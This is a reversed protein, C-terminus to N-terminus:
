PIYTFSVRKDKTATGVGVSDPVVVLGDCWGNDAAHFSVPFNFSHWQESGVPIDFSAALAGLPIFKAQPSSYPYKGSSPAGDSWLVDSLNGTAGESHSWTGGGAGDFTLTVAESNAMDIVFKRGNGALDSPANTMMSYDVEILRSFFQATTIGTVVDQYDDELDLSLIFRNTKFVWSSLDFSYAPLYEMQAKSDWTVTYTDAAPDHSVKNEVGKVKPLLLAPSDIDFGPLSPGFIVVSDITIPTDPTTGTTPFNTSNTFGDILARSGALISDDVVEGFISHKDDLNPLAPHDDVLTIFFQSGNSCAGSNAMSVVYKNAHRLSPHFEDQFVYGPGGSGNGRPDGGQLVFGYALRHFTLGDYYKKGTVVKGTTTDLWAKQGTALGIFNACTRPAKDYDLRVRFTGSGGTIGPHSVTFDAYIQAQLNGELFAALLTIACLLPKM